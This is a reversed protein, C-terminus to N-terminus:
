KRLMEANTFIFLHFFRTNAFSRRTRSDRTARERAGITPPRRAPSRQLAEPGRAGMNSTSASRWRDEPCRPPRRVECGAGRVEAGGAGRPLGHHPQRGGCVELRRRSVCTVDRLTGFPGGRPAQAGRPRLAPGAYRASM